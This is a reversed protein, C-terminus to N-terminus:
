WKYQQIFQMNCVVISFTSKNMTWKKMRWLIAFRMAYSTFHMWSTIACRILCFTVIPFHYIECTKLRQMNIELEDQKQISNKFRVRSFELKLTVVSDFVFLIHNLIENMREFRLDRIIKKPKPWTQKNRFLLSYCFTVQFTIFIWSVFAWKMVWWLLDCAIFDKM